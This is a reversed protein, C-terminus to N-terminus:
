NWYILFFIISVYAWLFAFLIHIFTEFKKGKWLKSSYGFFQIILRLTWFICFGLAITNGLKTEVIEKASTICLLGMLLVVVAIFFTHVYMLQRNILSLNPLEIKWNFYRPFIGHVLALITLIWGIIKLHLEM